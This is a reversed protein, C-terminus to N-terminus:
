KEWGKTEDKRDELMCKNVPSWLAVVIIMTWDSRWPGKSRQCNGRVLVDHLLIVLLYFIPNKSRNKLLFDSKEISKEAFFRNEPPM